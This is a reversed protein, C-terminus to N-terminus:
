RCIIIRVATMLPLLNTIRFTRVWGMVTVEYGTEESALLTKVKVRKNFM